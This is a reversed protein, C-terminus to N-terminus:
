EVPGNFTTKITELLRDTTWVEVQIKTKVKKINKPNTEIFLVFDTTTAKKAINKDGVIRVTGWNDKVKFYIPLDENTKNAIQVNYLNSINGNKQEQYLMGPVRLFTTEVETRISIFFVQLSILILLVATYGIIRPTVRFPVKNVINNYSAYRVLGRPKGIKDMVQDCADICATCNICELQTGNRIDIGTPCVQVCLGCDICDGQKQSTSDTLLNTQEQRNKKLKGRPEGRVHDYAIVISDKSLLVSQLRGYPCVIICAQERLYAFVFFFIGTFAVLGIFGPLNNIPNSQVIQFVKEYGILYAMLTHAIIISILLFISFKATKRLFKDLDWPRANLKRQQNADGEIWYEIKRFVMEMMVTQPCTWGCWLRGYVVTFLIVFVFFSLMTGAFLHFDQPLFVFGFISFKREFINFLFLPNGNIKVFPVGFLIILLVVTVAVRYRHFRGSPKKPYIWVRKGREDVSSLKDRFAEKDEIIEINEM